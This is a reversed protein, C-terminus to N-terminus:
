DEDEDEDEDEQEMEDETGEEDEVLEVEEDDEGEDPDVATDIKATDPAVVAERKMNKMWAMNGYDGGTVLKDYMERFKSQAIPPPSIIDAKRFLKLRIMM